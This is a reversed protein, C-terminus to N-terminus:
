KAPECNNFADLSNAAFLFNFANSMSGDSFSLVAPYSYNGRIFCTKESYLIYVGTQQRFRDTERPDMIARYVSKGNVVTLLLTSESRRSLFIELSAYRGRCNFLPTENAVATWDKPYLRRDSECNAASAATAVAASLLAGLLMLPWRSM